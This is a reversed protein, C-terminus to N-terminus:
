GNERVATNQLRQESEPNECAAGEGRKRIRDCKRPKQEGEVKVCAAGTERERIHDCEPLKGDRVLSKFVTRVYPALKVANARLMRGRRRQGRNEFKTASVAKLIERCERVGYRGTTRAYPRLKSIKTWLTRSYPRM